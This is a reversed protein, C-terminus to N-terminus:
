QYNLHINPVVYFCSMELFNQVLEYWVIYVLSSHLLSSNSNAGVVVPIHLRLFLFGSQPIALHHCLVNILLPYM